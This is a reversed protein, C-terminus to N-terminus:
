FKRLSITLHPDVDVRDMSGTCKENKGGENVLEHHDEGIFVKSSYKIGENLKRDFSV